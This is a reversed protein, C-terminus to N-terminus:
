SNVIHKLLESLEDKEFRDITFVNRMKEILESSGLSVVNKSKHHVLENLIQVLGNSSTAKRFDLVVLIHESKQILQVALQFSITDSFSDIVFVESAPSLKQLDYQFSSQSPADISQYILIPIPM